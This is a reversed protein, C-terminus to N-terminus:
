EKYKGAAKRKAFENPSIGGEKERIQKSSMGRWQGGILGSQDTHSKEYDVKAQYQKHIEDTHYKLYAPCKGDRFYACGTTCPDGSTTILLARFMSEPEVLKCGDTKLVQLDYGIRNLALPM